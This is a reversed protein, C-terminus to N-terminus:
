IKVVINIVAEPTASSGLEANVNTPIGNIQAAALLSLQAAIETIWYMGAPGARDIIGQAQNIRTDSFKEGDNNADNVVDLLYRKIDLAIATNDNSTQILQRLEADLTRAKRPKKKRNLFLYIIATLALLEIM